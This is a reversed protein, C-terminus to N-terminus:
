MTQNSPHYFFRLGGIMSMEFEKSMLSSFEDCLTNNTAGFLIDDV